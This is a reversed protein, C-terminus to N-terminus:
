AHRAMREAAGHGLYAEIVKPDAAIERPTGSAILKGQALVHAQDALAAVAQM